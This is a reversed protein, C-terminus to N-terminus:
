FRFIRNLVKMPFLGIAFALYIAKLILNKTILYKRYNLIHWYYIRTWFSSTHTGFIEDRLRFTLKITSYEIQNSISKAHIRVHTLPENLNVFRHGNKIMRAFIDYDEAKFNEQKYLYNKLVSARITITGHM